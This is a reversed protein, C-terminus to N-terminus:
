ENDQINIEESTVIPSIYNVKKKYLDYFIVSALVLAISVIIFNPSYSDDMLKEIAVNGKGFYALAVVLGNNLIHATISYWLNGTLYYIYGLFISIMFIPLIQTFKFHILAFILSTLVISIH